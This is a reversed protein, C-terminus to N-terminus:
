DALLEPRFKSRRTIMKGAVMFQGDGIYHLTRPHRPSRAVHAKVVEFIFFNYKQVLADDALKCEFNAYCETILPAQVRDAKQATLGFVAFKDTEAGSSNGIGVVEDTLADTPVNIVCERSRRILEFSYNGAAIVCGVLAPTFEMMTHWGMTMINRVGGHAATVLVIPGPELYRRVKAVPFDVKDRTPM